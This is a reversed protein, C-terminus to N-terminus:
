ALSARPALTKPVGCINLRWSAVEGLSPSKGYTMQCQENTMSFCISQPVTLWWSSCHSELLGRM